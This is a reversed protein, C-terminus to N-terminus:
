IDDLKDGTRRTTAGWRAGRGWGAGLRGGPVQRRGRGRLVRGRGRGGPVRLVLLVVLVHLLVGHVVGLVGHLHASAKVMVEVGVKVVVEVGVKVGM